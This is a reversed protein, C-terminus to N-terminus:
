RRVKEDPRAATDREETVPIPQIKQLPGDQDAIKLVDRSYEHCAICTTLIHMYTYSAGDLNKSEALKVLKNSQRRLDGRYHSYVQDGRSAWRTADCIRALEEAGKKIEDYDQTVLGSTIMQSSALKALMLAALQEEKQEGPTKEPEGKPQAASMWIGAVLVLGLGLALRRGYLKIM